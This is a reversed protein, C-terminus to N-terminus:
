IKIIEAYFDADCEYDDNWFKMLPKYNLKVWKKIDELHQDSCKPVGFLLQPYESISVVFNDKRSFEDFVNCIKIRPGHDAQVMDKISIYIINPIGSNAEQIRSMEWGHDETIVCDDKFKNM